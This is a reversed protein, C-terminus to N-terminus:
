PETAQNRVRWTVRSRGDEVRQAPLSRVARTEGSVRSSPRVMGSDGRVADRSSGAPRRALRWSRRRSVGDARGARLAAFMRQAQEFPVCLDGEWHLILLPINIKDAHALPTQAPWKAPDTGVMSTMTHGIDSTGLLSDWAFVARECIAARFRRGHQAALWATMFGGYSGGLVGARPRFRTSTAGSSALRALSSGSCGITCAGSCDAAYRPAQGSL